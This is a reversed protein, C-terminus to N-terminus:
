DTSGFDMCYCSIDGGRGSAPSKDKASRPGQVCGHLLTGLREVLIREVFIQRGGERRKRGMGGAGAVGEVEQFFRRRSKRQGLSPRSHGHSDLRPGTYYITYVYM